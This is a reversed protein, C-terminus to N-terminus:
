NIHTGETIDWLAMCEVALSRGATGKQRVECIFNKTEACASSGLLTSNEASGNRLQAHVCAGLAADPHGARWTVQGPLVVAADRACWVRGDRGCGSDQASTWFEGGGV